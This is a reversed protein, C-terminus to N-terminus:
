GLILSNHNLMSTLKIWYLLVYSIYTDVLTNESVAPGDPSQYFSHIFGQIYRFMVPPIVPIHHSYTTPGQHLFYTKTVPGGPCRARWFGSNEAEYGDLHLSIKGVMFEGGGGSDSVESVMAVIWLEHRLTTRLCRPLTLSFPVRLCVERGEPSADEVALCAWGPFGPTNM